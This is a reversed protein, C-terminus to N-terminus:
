FGMMFKRFVSVRFKTLGKGVTLYQWCFGFNRWNWFYKAVKFILYLPRYFVLTHRALQPGGGV